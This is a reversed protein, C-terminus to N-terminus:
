SSTKREKMMMMRYGKEKKDEEGEGEEVEQEQEKEQLQQKLLVNEQEVHQLLQKCSHLTIEKEHLCWRLNENALQLERLYHLDGVFSM